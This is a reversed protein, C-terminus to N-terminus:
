PATTLTSPRYVRTAESHTGDPWRIAVTLDFLEEHGPVARSTAEWRYAEFPRAFVGQRLSDALPDLERRSALRLHALQEEALANAELGRAARDTTRLVAGFAGLAATSAVGVIALAVIAELLSFGRSGARSGFV